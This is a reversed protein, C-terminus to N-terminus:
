PTLKAPFLSGMPLRFPSQSRPSPPLRPSADRRAKMTCWSRYVATPSRALPGCPLRSHWVQAADDTRNHYTSEVLATRPRTCRGHRCQAPSRPFRGERPGPRIRPCIRARLVDLPLARPRRPTARAPRNRPAWTGCLPVCTLVAATERCTPRATRGRPLWRRLAHPPRPRQAPDRAAPQVAAARHVRRPERAAEGCDLAQPVQGANKLAEGCRAPM